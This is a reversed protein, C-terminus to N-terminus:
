FLKKLVKEAIEGIQATVMLNKDTFLKGHDAYERMADNDEVLKGLLEGFRDGLAGVGRGHKEDVRNAIVAVKEQLGTERVTEMGKMTNFVSGSEMSAVVIVLDAYKFYDLDGRESITFSDFVTIKFIRRCGKGLNEFEKKNIKENSIYSEPGALFPFKYPSVTLVSMLKSEELNGETLLPRITAWSYATDVNLMVKGRGLPSNLDVLCVGGEPIYKTLQLTLNYSIISKGSGNSFSTVMVVKGEGEAGAQTKKGALLNQYAQKIIRELEQKGLPWHVITHVGISVAQPYVEKLREEKECVVVVASNSWKSRDWHKLFEDGVLIIDCYGVNGLKTLDEVWKVEMGDTPWDPRSVLRKPLVVAARIISDKPM